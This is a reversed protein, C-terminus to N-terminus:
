QNKKKSKFVKKILPLLSVSELFHQLKEYLQTSEKKFDNLLIRAEKLLIRMAKIIIIMELALVGLLIGAFIVAFSVTLNFIIQSAELITMTRYVEGM